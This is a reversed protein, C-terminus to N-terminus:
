RESWRAAKPARRVFDLPSSSRRAWVRPERQYCTHGLIEKEKPNIPYVQGQYGYKTLNDLVSHGLKAPNASAGIVAVAQPSFLSELVGCGGKQLHTM